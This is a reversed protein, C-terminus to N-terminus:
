AVGRWALLALLLVLMGLALAVYAGLPLDRLREAQRGAAGFVPGLGVAQAVL